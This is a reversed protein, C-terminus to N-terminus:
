ALEISEIDSLCPMRLNAEVRDFNDPAVPFLMGVVAVRKGEFRAIEEETRIANKDWIPELLIRTGDDLRIAAHGRYVPPDSTRMRVDMQEYDGILRVTELENPMLQDSSIVTPYDAM